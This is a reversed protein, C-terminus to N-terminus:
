HCHSKRNIVLRAGSQGCIDGFSCFSEIKEKADQKDNSVSRQLSQYLIVGKDVNAVGGSNIASIKDKHALHHDACIFALAFFFDFLTTYKVRNM